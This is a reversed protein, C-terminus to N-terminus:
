YFVIWLIFAMVVIFRTWTEAGPHWGWSTNKFLPTCTWRTSRSHHLANSKYEKYANTRSCKRLISSLWDYRNCYYGIPRCGKRVQPGCEVKFKMVLAAQTDYTSALYIILNKFIFPPTIIAASVRVGNHTLQVPPLQNWVYQEGWSKMM